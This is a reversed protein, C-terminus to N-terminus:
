RAAGRARAQRRKLRKAERHDLLWAIPRAILTVGPFLGDGIRPEAEQNPRPATRSRRRDVLWLVLCVVAILAGFGLLDGVPIPPPGGVFASAVIPAVIFVAVWFAVAVVTQIRDVESDSRGRLLRPLGHEILAPVVRYVVVGAGLIIFLVIFASRPTGVAVAAVLCGIFIASYYIRRVLKMTVVPRSRRHM